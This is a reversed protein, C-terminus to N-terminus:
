AEVISVDYAVTPQVGEVTTILSDVLQVAVMVSVADSGVVGDPVTVKAGPPVQARVPEPTDTEHETLM